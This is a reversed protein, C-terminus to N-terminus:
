KSWSAVVVMDRKSKSERERKSARKRDIKGADYFAGGGGYRHFTPPFDACWDSRLALDIWSDEPEEKSEEAILKDRNRM